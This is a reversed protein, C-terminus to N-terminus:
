GRGRRSQAEAAWQGGDYVVLHKYVVMMIAELADGAFAVLTLDLNVMDTYQPTLRAQVALNYEDFAVTLKYGQTVVSEILIGADNIKDTYWHDFADLQAVTLPNSLFQMQGTFTVRERTHKAAGGNQATKRSYRESSRGSM